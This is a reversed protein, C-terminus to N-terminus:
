DITKLQEVRRLAGVQSATIKLSSKRIKNYKKIEARAQAVTMTPTLGLEAFMAPSIQTQKKKGDKWSEFM